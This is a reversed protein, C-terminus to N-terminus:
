SVMGRRLAWATAESRNRVGIKVFINAVHREVTHVSVHLTSAIEKNAQGSAMLMIVEAERPSLPRDTVAASPLADGYGDAGWREHLDAAVNADRAAAEEHGLLHHLQALHWAAAGWGVPVGQILNRTAYPELAAIIPPALEPRRCAIVAQGLIAASALFLSDRQM